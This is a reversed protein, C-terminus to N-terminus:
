GAPAEPPGPQRREVAADRTRPLDRPEGTSRQGARRSPWPRQSSDRLPCPNTADRPDRTLGHPRRPTTRLATATLGRPAPELPRGGRRARRPDGDGLALAP